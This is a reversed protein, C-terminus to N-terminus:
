AHQYLKCNNKDELGSGYVNPRQRCRVTVILSKLHKLKTVIKRIIQYEVQRGRDVDCIIHLTRVYKALLNNRNSIANLFLKCSTKSIYTSNHSEHLAFSLSMAVFSNSPRSEFNYSKLM